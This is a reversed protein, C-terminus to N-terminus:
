LVGVSRLLEIEDKSLLGQEALKKIIERRNRLEAIIETLKM